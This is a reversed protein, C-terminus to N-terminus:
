GQQAIKLIKPAEQEDGDISMQGPLQPTYEALVAEGNSDATFVLSTEIATAPALTSKASASIGIVQRNKSPVFEITLQVKRKKTGDTNVDLINDVVRSVEYDVREQIAGKAMTLISERTTAKIEM